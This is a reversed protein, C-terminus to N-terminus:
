NLYPLSLEIPLYIENTLHASRELRDQSDTRHKPVTALDAEHPRRLRQCWRGSDRYSLQPKLGKASGKEDRGHDRDEHASQGGPRNPAREIEREEDEAKEPRHRDVKTRVHRVIRPVISTPIIERDTVQIREGTSTPQQKAAQPAGLGMETHGEREEGGAREDSQVQDGLDAQRQEDEAEEPHRDGVGVDTWRKAESVM